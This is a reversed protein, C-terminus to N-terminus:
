VDPHKKVSLDFAGEWEIDTGAGQKTMQVSTIESAYPLTELIELMHLVAAKSGSAHISLTLLEAYGEGETVEISSASADVGIRRGLDEVSGLFGVVEDESLFYAALAENDRTVVPLQRALAREENLEKQTQAAHRKENMLSASLRGVGYGLVAYAALVAFVFVVAVVAIMKTKTGRM